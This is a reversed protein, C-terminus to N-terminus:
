EAGSRRSQENGRQWAATSRFNPHACETVVKKLISLAREAQVGLAGMSEVVFAHLEANERAAMERYSNNKDSEHSKTASLARRAAEAAKAKSAPHVVAVDAMLTLKKHNTLTFRLDPRKRDPRRGDAAAEERQEVAVAVDAERAASALARVVLDHRKTGARGM